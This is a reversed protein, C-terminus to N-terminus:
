KLVYNISTFIRILMIHASVRLLKFEIEPVRRHKQYGRLVYGSSVFPDIQNDGPKVCELMM